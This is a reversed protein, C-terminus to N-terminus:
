LTKLINVASNYVMRQKFSDEEGCRIDEYAAFEIQTGM